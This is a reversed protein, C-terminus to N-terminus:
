TKDCFDREKIIIIFSVKLTIALLSSLFSSSYFFDTKNHFSRRRFRRVNKPKDPKSTKPPVYRYSVRKASNLEEETHLKELKQIKSKLRANEEELERLRKNNENM